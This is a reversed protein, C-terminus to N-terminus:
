ALNYSMLNQCKIDFSIIIFYLIDEFNSIKQDKTLVKYNLLSLILFYTFLHKKCLLHMIVNTLLLISFIFLIQIVKDIVM